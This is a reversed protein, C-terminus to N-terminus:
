PMGLRHLALACIVFNVTTGVFMGEQDEAATNSTPTDQQARAFLGAELQYALADGPSAM